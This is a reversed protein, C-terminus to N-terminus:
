ADSLELLIGVNAFIVIIFILAVASRHVWGVHDHQAIMCGVGIIVFVLSAAVSIVVGVDVEVAAKRRGTTVLIAGVIVITLAAVFCGLSSRFLMSERPSRFPHRHRSAMTSYSRQATITPNENESDSSDDITPSTPSHNGNILPRQEDPMATGDPHSTMWTQFKEWLAKTNNSLNDFAKSVTEAGPFTSPANPDVFITYPEDREGESGDDFENWYRQNFTQESGKLEKRPLRRRKGPKRKKKFASLPPNALEEPASTASSEGQVASFTGSSQGNRTSPASISTRRTTTDPSVKKNPM